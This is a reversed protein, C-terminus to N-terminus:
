SEVREVPEAGSETLGIRESSSLRRQVCKPCKVPVHGLRFRFEQQSISLGVKNNQIYVPLALRQLCSLGSVMGTASCCTRGGVAPGGDDGM